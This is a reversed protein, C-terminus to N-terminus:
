NGFTEIKYGKELSIDELRGAIKIPDNGLDEIPTGNIDVFHMQPMFDGPQYETKTKLEPNFKPSVEVKGVLVKVTGGSGDPIEQYVNAARGVVIKNIQNYMSGPLMAKGKQYMEENIIRGKRDKSSAILWDGIDRSPSGNLKVVVQKYTINKGDDKVPVSVLALSRGGMTELAIQSEKFSGNHISALLQDKTNGRGLLPNGGEIPNGNMDEVDIAASMIVNRLYDKSQDTPMGVWNVPQSHDKLIRDKYKRGYAKAAAKDKLFKSTHIDKPNPNLIHEPAVWKGNNDLVYGAEKYATEKSQGLAAWGANEILEEAKSINELEKRANDVTKLSQIYSDTLGAGGEQERYHEKVKTLKQEPSLKSWAMLQAGDSDGPLTAIVPDELKGRIADAANLANTNDIFAKDLDPYKDAIAKLNGQSMPIMMNKTAINAKHDEIALVDLKSGSDTTVNNHEYKALGYQLASNILSKTFTKSYDSEKLATPSSYGLSKWNALRAEGDIGMDEIFDKTSTSKAKMYGNVEGYQQVYAQAEQDSAFGATWIQQARKASLREWKNGGWKEIFGDSYRYDNGGKDAVFDKFYKDTRETMDVYKAVPTGNFTGVLRGNEDRTLGKYNEIAKRKLVARTTPDLNKDKSDIENEVWDSYAKMPVALAAATYAYENGVQKVAEVGNEWDQRQNWEDITSKTKNLMEDAYKQDVGLGTLKMSGQLIGDAGQKAADYRQQMIQSVQLSEPNASGAYLPIETSNTLKYSNYLPTM